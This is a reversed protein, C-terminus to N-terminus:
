FRFIGGKLIFTHVDVVITDVIEGHVEAEIAFLESLRTEVQMKGDRLVRWVPPTFKSGPMPATLILVSSFLRQVAAGPKRLIRLKQMDCLGMRPARPADTAPVIARVTLSPYVLEHMLGDIGLRRCSERTLKEELASEVPGIANAYATLVDGAAPSVTHNDLLYRNM